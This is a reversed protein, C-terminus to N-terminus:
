RRRCAARFEERHLKLGGLFPVIHFDLHQRYQAVTSREAMKLARHFFPTRLMLVCFPARASALAM